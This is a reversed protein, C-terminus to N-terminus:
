LAIIVQPIESAGIKVWMGMEELVSDTRSVAMWDPITCLWHKGM